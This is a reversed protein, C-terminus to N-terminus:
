DDLLKRIHALDHIKFAELSQLSSNAINESLSQALKVAQAEDSVEPKVRNIVAEPSVAPLPQKSILDQSLKHTLPQLLKLSKISKDDM